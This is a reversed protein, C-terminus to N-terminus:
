YNISENWCIIQGTMPQNLWDSLENPTLGDNKAIEKFIRVDICLGSMMYEGSLLDVCFDFTKKVQIDPAFQIQKSNYPRGSWVRPSFYDGAKFRYGDRITHFKPDFNLGMLGLDGMLECYYDFYPNDLNANEIDDKSCLSRIVKEVFYTPKGANPHYAPFQRSFTIIKAMNM